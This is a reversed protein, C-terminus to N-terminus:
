ALLDDVGTRSAVAKGADDADNADNAEAFLSRPGPASLAAPAPSAPASSPLRDGFARRIALIDLTNVRGDYNVDGNSFTAAEGRIGFNLRAVLIDLTNVRVDDTADGPLFRFGLSSPTVNGAADTADFSLRYDGAALSGAATPDREFILSTGEVRLPMAAADLTQGTTLNVLGVDGATVPEDFVFTARQSEERDFGARVLTPATADAPTGYANFEFGNVRALDGGVLDAVRLTWTGDTLEGWHHTSGFTWRDYDDNFDGHPEALVSVTGDPSELTVLLDGRYTTDIDAVLEVSEARLGGAVEFPIAVGGANSDPVNANVAVYGTSVSAEDAVPEWDAALAVAAAADVAGHGYKHNVTHGAGNVAWGNDNPDTRAATEVLVHQVDRWSLDPNAELMLAVVGSALPSSSSTGGFQFDIGGGRATTVIGPSSSHATVLMSAGPESYWSQRGDHDVAGVALTYRSSAYGDYNVNDDNGLGNGAAWVYVGGLGGRGATVGQEFAALTLPGFTDKGQGSDPPGWSNNYVDIEQLRHSLTNAVLRDTMGAGVSRLGVLRADPASGTVDQGNFGAAAAVGAVSTGHNEFSFVPRADDDDDLFDYDISTDYNPALDRHLYDVGDDVIGITVGVGTVGDWAGVVNADAGPTGGTQGTNRLHWQNAFRTDNPVARTVNNTAAEPYFAGGDGVLGPLDAAGTLGAPLTAHYVNELLGSPEVAVGAARLAAPDATRVVWERGALTAADYRGLDTARDWARQMPTSVVRDADFPVAELTVAPRAALADVAEFPKLGDAALLRRPEPADFTPDSM